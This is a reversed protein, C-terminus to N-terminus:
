WHTVSLVNSQNCKFSSMLQSWAVIRFQRGRILRLDESLVTGIGSELSFAVRLM